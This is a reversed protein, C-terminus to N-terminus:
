EIVEVTGKMFPHPTCTYPFTGVTNFTHSFTEGKGFLAHSTPLGGSSSPTSAIVNHGVTDNNTWTVKTGKKIKIAAPSFSMDRIGIAVETKATMDTASSNQSQAGTNGLASGHTDDGTQATDSTGTNAQRNLSLYIAAGIIVAALAVIAIIIVSKRM